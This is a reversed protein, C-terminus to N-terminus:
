RVGYIEMIKKVWVDISFNEAIYQQSNKILKDDKSKGLSEKMKNKLEIVNESEIMEVSDVNRAWELGPIDTSIVNMGSYAAECVAYSFTEKRSASIFTKSKRFLENVDNVPACVELWIPLKDDFYKYVFPWTQENGNLLLKFNYGEECLLECASFVIDTGKRYYDWGMLLYDWIKSNYNGCQTDIRSLDLCNIVTYSKKDPMGLKVAMVRYYEAVSILQSNKSLFRYQICRCLRNKISDKEYIADHLHWFIKIHRNAVFSAPIDYLEFHSHIIDVNNEKLIRSILLYTSIRIRAKALPLYYIKRNKKLEKVWDCEKASEPFAYIVNHGKETLKEDLAILSHIFNGGYEAAYAALQLINM